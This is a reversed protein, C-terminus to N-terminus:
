HMHQIPESEIWSFINILDEYDLEYEVISKGTVTHYINLKVNPSDNVNEVYISILGNKTNVFCTDINRERIDILLSKGVPNIDCFIEQLCRSVANTCIEIEKM